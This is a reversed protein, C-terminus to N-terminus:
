LKEADELEKFVAEIIAPDEVHEQIIKALNDMFELVRYTPVVMRREVQMKHHREVLKGIEKSVSLLAGISPNEPDLEGSDDIELRLREQVTRLMAIDGELSMLDPDQKRLEVAERLSKPVALPQKGTYNALESHTPTSGSHLKCRGSGAHTTGWGAPRECYGDGQKTRSNCVSTAPLMPRQKDDLGHNTVTMVIPHWIVTSYAILLEVTVYDKYVVGSFKNPLLLVTISIM